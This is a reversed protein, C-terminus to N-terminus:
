GQGEIGYFPTNWNMAKRVTPVNSSILIDLWRGVDHKWEPMAAIYAQMLADDEGKAIQPNGSSPRTM